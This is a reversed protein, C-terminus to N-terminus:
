KVAPPVPTSPNGLFTEAPLSTTHLKKPSVKQQQAQRHEQWTMFAAALTLLIVVTILFRTKRPLPLM